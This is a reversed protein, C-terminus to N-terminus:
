QEEDQDITLTWDAYAAGAEDYQVPTAEYLVVVNFDDGEVADEPVNGIKVLLDSAKAGAEVISGYYWYGDSGATWGTGSYTLTMGEPAYAIARVYVPAEGTNSIQVTKTWDTVSPEEIETEPGLVITKVGAADTYTTFYALAQPVSVCLIGALLAFSLLISIRKKM